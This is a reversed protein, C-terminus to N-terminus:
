RRNKNLLYYDYIYLKFYISLKYVSNKIIKKVFIDVYLNYLINIYYLLRNM